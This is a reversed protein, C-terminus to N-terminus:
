SLHFIQFDSTAVGKPKQPLAIQFKPPWSHFTHRSIFSWKHTAMNEFSCGRSGHFDSNQAIKQQLNCFHWLWFWLKSGFCLKLAEFHSLYSRSGVEPPGLEALFIYNKLRGKLFTYAAEFVIGQYLLSICRSENPEGSASAFKVKQNKTRVQGGQFGADSVSCWSISWM